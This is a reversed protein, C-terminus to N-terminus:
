AEFYISRKQIDKAIDILKTLTTYFEGRSISNKSIQFEPKIGDNFAASNDTVINIDNKENSRLDLGLNKARIICEKMPIDRKTPDPELFRILFSDLEDYTLDDDPRFFLNNGESVTTSSDILNEDIMKQVYGSDWEDAKLDQYKGLYPRTSAMRFAKFLVMLSQSRPIPDYPHLHMVCPDPLCYHYAKKLGELDPYDAIDMFPPDIAFFDPEPYQDPIVKTDSDPDAFVPTLGNDFVGAPCERLEKAGRVAEMFMDSVLLSGYENTHTVDGAMFFDKTRSGFELWKNFTLEHLDIFLSGSETAAEKTAEAYDKLLSYFREMNLLLQQNKSLELPIRSIPSCLLVGAGKEKAENAFRILNDKYEKFPKLNRRKQDNHGFQLILLDGPKIMEQIIAYHGDDRFCNSTLGSHSVNCVAAGEIYRPLTQAWGSFSGYLFYPIGANQDTVTSDGGIWIVPVTEEEINVELKLNSIDLDRWNPGVTSCLNKGSLSIFIDKDECRKYSLAPIFPTVNTHYTKKYTCFSSISTNRSIMARRSSFLSLNSIDKKIATISVTIRYTGFRPVSAKIILVERDPNSVDEKFHRRNWGGSKLAEEHATPLAPSIMEPAFFGFGKEDSFLNDKYSGQLTFSKSFSM